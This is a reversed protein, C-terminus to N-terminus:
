FFPGASKLSEDFHLGMSGSLTFSNCVIAAIADTTGVLTVTSLPAYFTGILRAQGGYSVPQSTLSIISFDKAFGGQNIVGQGQIDVRGSCYFEVYANTTMLVYGSSAMTFQGTVNIRCRANILMKQGSGISLNGIHRYDGDALIAYQYNTGGVAPYLVNQPLVSPGFNNPLTAPPIYYNVDDIHHGPEILGKGVPSEVWARSGVSGSNAIQVTGGPGTAVSGCIQMTGVYMAGPTRLTTAVLARDTAKALDYRGLTSELANTSNFSDIRGSGNLAVVGRAVIAHEFLASPVRHVRWFTQSSAAPVIVTRTAQSESNTLARTWNRLDSSSELIYAANTEGHLTFQFQNGLLAANTLVPQVGALAFASCLGGILVATCASLRKKTSM